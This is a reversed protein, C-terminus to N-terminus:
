PAVIAGTAQVRADRDAWQALAHAYLGLAAPGVADRDLEAATQRAGQRLRDRLAPDDRLRALARALAAADGPEVLLGNRGDDVLDPLARTATAVVPAGAALAEHAAASTSALGRATRPRDYPLVVADCAALTDAVHEQPLHGAFRVAGVSRARSGRPPRSGGIPEGWVTLCVGPGATRVAELLTPLGKSGYIHGFYVLELSDRHDSGAPAGVSQPDVPFPLVTPQPLAGRYEQV